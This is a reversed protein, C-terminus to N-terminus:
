HIYKSGPMPTMEMEKEKTRRKSPSYYSELIIESDTNTVNTSAILLHQGEVEANYNLKDEDCRWNAIPQPPPQPQIRQFLTPDSLIRHYFITSPSPFRLNPVLHMPRRVVQWSM